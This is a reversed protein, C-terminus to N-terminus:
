SFELFEKCSILIVILGCCIFLGIIPNQNEQLNNRGEPTFWSWVTFFPISKFLFCPFAILTTIFMFSMFTLFIINLLTSTPINALETIGANEVIFIQYGFALLVLLACIGGTLSSIRWIKM